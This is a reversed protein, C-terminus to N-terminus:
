QPVCGSACARGSAHPHSGAVHLDGCTSAVSACGRAADPGFRRPGPEAPMRDSLVHSPSRARRPSEEGMDKAGLGKVVPMSARAARVLLGGLARNRGSAESSRPIRVGDRRFGRSLSVPNVIDVISLHLNVDAGLM